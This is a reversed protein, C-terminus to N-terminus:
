THNSKHKSTATFIKICIKNGSQKQESSANGITYNDLFLRLNTKTKEQKLVKREAM